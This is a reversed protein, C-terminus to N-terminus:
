WVVMICYGRKFPEHEYFQASWPGILRIFKARRGRVVLESCFFDGHADHVPMCPRPSESGDFRGEVPSCYIGERIRATESLVSCVGGHERGLSHTKMKAVEHRSVCRRRLVAVTVVLVM